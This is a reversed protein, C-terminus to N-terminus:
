YADKDIIRSFLDVLSLEKQHFSCIKGGAAIIHKIIPFISESGKQANMEVEITNGETPDSINIIEKVLPFESIRKFLLTSPSELEVVYHKEAGVMRKIEEVTGTTMVRGKHIFAIRDCLEEAEHLNHTAFVVTRKMEKVLKERIFVRIKQATIPDLANTPEDMFLIDPDTLLGRAIALKKRTGTSYDKFMKEAEHSLDMFSLLDNIKADIDSRPVNNLKAFFTLNQRGTLRWYFSREDCIVYGIMKKIKKGQHVVDLGNIYTTGSTPLVMTCLIKILTTKGAGNSGLLGFLEGKKIKLSIESLATTEKKQLPRLLLDRYNKILPFKKTLNFTEICYTM